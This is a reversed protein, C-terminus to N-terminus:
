VLDISFLVAEIENFADVPLVEWATFRFGKIHEKFVGIRGRARYFKLADSRYHQAGDTDSSIEVVVKIREDRSMREAGLIAKTVDDFDLRKKTALCVPPSDNSFGRGKGMAAEYRVSLSKVLAKKEEDANTNFYSRADFEAVRKVVSENQEYTSINSKPCFVEEIFHFSLDSM